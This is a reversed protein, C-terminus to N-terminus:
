AAEFIVSKFKVESGSGSDPGLTSSAGQCDEDSYVTANANLVSNQPAFATGSKGEVEPINICETEQPNDLKASSPSAPDGYQYFFRGDVANASTPVIAILALAGLAASVAHRLRM